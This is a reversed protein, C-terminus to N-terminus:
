TFIENVQLFIQLAQQLFTNLSSHTYPFHRPMQCLLYSISDQAEWHNANAEKDTRHKGPIGLTSTAHQDQLKRQAVPLCSDKTEPREAEWLFTGQSTYLQQIQYGRQAVDQPQYKLLQSAFDGPIQRISPCSAETREGPLNHRDKSKTEQMIVLLLVQGNLSIQSHLEIQAHMM